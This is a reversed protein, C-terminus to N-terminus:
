APNNVCIVEVTTIAIDEMKGAGNKVTCTQGTPQKLITVGYTQGYIVSTPLTFSTADKAIVGTTDAGNNLTLNDATLGTIKGGVTNSVLVCSIVANIVSLRGATDATGSVPQCNQHLPQTKVTISYQDGYDLRKGFEYTVNKVAGTADLGAPALTVDDSLNNTLVLGSYQLGAVTGGITYTSTGGGCAVLSAAMTLACLALISKKM